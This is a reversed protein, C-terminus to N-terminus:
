YGPIQKFDYYFFVLYIRLNDIGDCADFRRM